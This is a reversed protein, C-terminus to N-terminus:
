KKVEAAPLAPKAVQATQVQDANTKDPAPTAAVEKNTTASDVAAQTKHYTCDAGALATGGFVAALMLAVLFAIFRQM